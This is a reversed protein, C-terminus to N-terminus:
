KAVEKKGYRGIPYFTVKVNLDIVSYGKKHNEQDVERTNFYLWWSDMALTSPLFEWMLRLHM